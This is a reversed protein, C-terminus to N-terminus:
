QEVGDQWVSPHLARALQDIALIFHHNLADMHDIHYVRENQVAAVAQLVPDNLIQRVFEDGSDTIIVDPNTQLILELDIQPWGSIGMESIVNVGGAYRIIDDVSTNTGVTSGWSNYYLVRPRPEGIIRPAIRGYDAYFADILAEAQEEEGTLRGILALNDLADQVTDFATFTFVTYGLRRIQEVADPDNWSAVLVLDPDAAIIYEANLADIQLMHPRVKDQVYSDMAAFRTVGIVREPDVVALLLNDLALGTSFIRQPPEALHVPNGLGDVVTRPFAGAAASTLAILVVVHLLPRHLARLRWRHLM